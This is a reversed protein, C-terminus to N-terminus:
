VVDPGPNQKTERYATWLKLAKEPDRSTCKPPDFCNDALQYQSILTLPDAAKINAEVIRHIAEKVAPDDPLEAELKPLNEFAGPVRAQAAHLLLTTRQTVQGPAIDRCADAPKPFKELVVRASPDTVAALEAEYARADVCRQLLTYAALADEPKGSRILRDVMETRTEIPAAAAPKM